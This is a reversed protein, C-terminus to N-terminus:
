HANVGYGIVHRQKRHKVEVVYKPLNSTSEQRKKNKFLPEKFAKLFALARIYAKDMDDGLFYKVGEVDPHGIIKYGLLQGASDFEETMYLPLSRDRTHRTANNRMLISYAEPSTEMLRQKRESMKKKTEKSYTRNSSGGENLNYGKPYLTAYANIFIREYHDLFRDDIEILIEEKINEMGYKRIAAHFYPSCVKDHYQRNAESMHKSKRSSFRRITQGIYKKGSPSTFLYIVGM